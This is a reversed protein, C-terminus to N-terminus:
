IRSKKIHKVNFRTALIEQANEPVEGTYLMELEATITLSAKDLSEFPLLSSENFQTALVSQIQRAVATASDVLQVHSPLTREFLARLFPFHTCGLVVSDADVFKTRHSDIFQQIQQIMPSALLADDATDEKWFLSEAMKVLESSGISEVTVHNAFNSILSHTYPNKVTSPTALLVVKGTKTTAAAPKVAPVVGVFPVSFCERLQSLTLTSATNCAVVIVDPQFFTVLNDAIALLRECLFRDSLEGYPLYRNDMFYMFEANPIQQITSQVISLGGIGSDIFAIKPLFTSAEM